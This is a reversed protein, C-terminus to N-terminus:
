CSGHRSIANNGQGFRQHSPFRQSDSCWVFTGMRSPHTTDLCQVSRAIAHALRANADTNDQSSPIPVLWCPGTILAAMDRGATDLDQSSCAPDKIAYALRRVEAQQPTRAGDRPSHYRHAALIKV